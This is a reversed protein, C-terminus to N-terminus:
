CRHHACATLYYIDM